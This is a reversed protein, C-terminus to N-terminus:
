YQSMMLFRNNDNDYCRIKTKYKIGINFIQIGSVEINFQFPYGSIMVFIYDLKQRTNQLNMEQIVVYMEWKHCQM